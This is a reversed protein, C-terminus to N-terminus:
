AGLEESRRREGAFFSTQQFDYDGEALCRDLQQSLGRRTTRALPMASRGDGSELKSFLLETQM